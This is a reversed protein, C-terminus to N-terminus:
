QNNFVKFWPVEVIESTRVGTHHGHIFKEGFSIGHDSTIFIKGETHNILDEVHKLVYKLNDSYAVKWDRTTIKGLSINWLFSRFINNFWVLEEEDLGTDFDNINLKKDGIYPLHPQLFHIIMKKDPHKEKMQSFIDVVREPPVTGLKDDWAYDWANEVHFFHEDGDFGFVELDSIFPNASIYLVDDYKRTFNKDRWEKTTSGKSKIKNLKGDIDNYKKFYDYRCCDLVILYDWDGEMISSSSSSEFLSYIYKHFFLVLINAIIKYCLGIKKKAKFNKSVLINYIDRSGKVIFNM